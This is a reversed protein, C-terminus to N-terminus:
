SVVSGPRHANGGMAPESMLNAQEYTSLVRASTEIINAGFFLRAEARRLCPPTPSCRWRRSRAHLNHGLPSNISAILSVQGRAACADLLNDLHRSL